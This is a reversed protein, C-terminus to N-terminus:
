QKTFIIFVIYYLVFFNDLIKIFIKLIVEKLILLRQPKWYGCLSRLEKTRRGTLTNETGVGSDAM